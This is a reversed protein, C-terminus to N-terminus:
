AYAGLVKRVYNRTEKYPPVGRYKNVAGEGANYAAVALRVNGNYRRLLQSLYKVGAHINTDPDSLRSPSFGLGRATAPMLQMLGRAGAKSRANPNGNSEASIVALVLKQPVNYKRAYKDAITSWRSAGPGARQPSFMSEKITRMLSPEVTPVPGRAPPAPEGAPGLGPKPKFEAAPVGVPSARPASALGDRLDAPASGAEPLPARLGNLRILEGRREELAARERAADLGFADAKLVYATLKAVDGRLAARRSSGSAGPRPSSLAPRERGLAELGRELTRREAASDRALLRRADRAYAHEKSLEGLAWRAEPDASPDQGEKLLKGLYRELKGANEEARRTELAVARRPDRALPAGTEERLQALRLLEDSGVRHGDVKPREQAAAGCSLLIILVARAPSKM